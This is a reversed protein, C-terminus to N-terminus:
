DKRTKPPWPFFSSTEEMYKRYGERREALAEELMPVGSVRMLFYTMLLPSFLTMWGRPTAAAVLFIGWWILSDGFYNPHRSYRWLGRNMVKGKNAGDSLFARLQSDAVAEVLWGVSWLGLGLFDLLTLGRPVPSFQAFQAPLSIAWILLAQLLFVTVLSRRPFASPARARMAAYRFDEGRGRSRLGIHFALRGGWLVTMAVVLLKRAPDGDTMSYTTVALMAGAAGWVIDVISVDRIRLSVVWVSAMLAASFALNLLLVKFIPEM